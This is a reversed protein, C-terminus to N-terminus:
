VSPEDDIRYIIAKCYYNWPRNDLMFTKFRGEVGDFQWEDAPTIKYLDGDNVFIKRADVIRESGFTAAVNSLEKPNLPQLTIRHESVDDLGDVWIGDVYGGGNERYRFAPVSRFTNDIFGRM